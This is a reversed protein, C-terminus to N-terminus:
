PILWLISPRAQLIGFAILNFVNAYLKRLGEINNIEQAAVKRM